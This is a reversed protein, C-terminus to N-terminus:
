SAAARVRVARREARLASSRARGHRLLVGAAFDEIITGASATGYAVAFAGDGFDLLLITNDDAEAEIARGLFERVPVVQGSLATVRRAPGLVSTLQHLAYVTMDYMPGGGPKRFYWAPDIAGRGARRPAGARRERPLAGFACGCVALGLKGIAGEAILERHPTLQPRLVEGPRPSSARPAASRALAILDDAEAVTTSITKNVHVHKGAELALRGHEAHLGIPSAFTVADIASTPWCSELRAFAQPVGFRERAADARARARPRLRAEVVVRDQM